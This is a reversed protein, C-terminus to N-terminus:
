YIDVTTVSLAPLDADVLIRFSGAYRRGGAARHDPRQGDGRDDPVPAGHGDPAPRCRGDDAHRHLPNIAVMVVRGPHMTDTSVYVAVKGVDSSIAQISTDGFHHNAGDFNRFARFGALLYPEDTAMSWLNAAFLDQAGFVGLNDAQAITGAIHKAGGNFYETIALKM